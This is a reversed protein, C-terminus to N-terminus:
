LYRKPVGQYDRRSFLGLALEYIRLIEAGTLGKSSYHYNIGKSVIESSGQKTDRFWNGSRGIRGSREPGCLKGFRKATPGIEVRRVRAGTPGIAIKPPDVTAEGSATAVCERSRRRIKNLQNFYLTKQGKDKGRLFIAARDCFKLRFLGGSASRLAEGAASNRGSSPVPFRTTCPLYEDIWLDGIREM